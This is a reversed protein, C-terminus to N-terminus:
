LTQNNLNHYFQIFEGIVDKFNVANFNAMLVLPVGACVVATPHLASVTGNTCVTVGDCEFKGPAVQAFGLPLLFARIKSSRGAGQRKGGYTNM